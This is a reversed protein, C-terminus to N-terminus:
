FTFYLSHFWIKLNFLVVLRSTCLLSVPTAMVTYGLVSMLTGELQILCTAPISEKRVLAWTIKLLVILKTCLYTCVDLMVAQLIMVNCVSSDLTLIAMWDLSLPLVEQPAPTQVATSAWEHIVPCTTFLVLTVLLSATTTFHHAATHCSLTLCMCGLVQLYIVGCVFCWMCSNMVVICCDWSTLVNHKALVMEPGGKNVCKLKLYHYHTSLPVHICHAYIAISAIKM